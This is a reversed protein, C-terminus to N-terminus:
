MARPDQYILHREKVTGIKNDKAKDSAADVMTKVTEDLKNLFETSLRMDHKDKAYQKIKSVVLLM